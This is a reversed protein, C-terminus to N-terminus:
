PFGNALYNSGGCAGERESVRHGWETSAFDQRTPWCSLLLPFPWANIAAKIVRRDSIYGVHFVLRLSPHSWGWDFAFEHCRCTALGYKTHWKSRVSFSQAVRTCSAIMFLGGSTEQIIGRMLPPFSCSRDKSNNRHVRKVKLLGKRKQPHCQTTYLM